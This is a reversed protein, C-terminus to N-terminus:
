NITKFHFGSPQKLSDKSTIKKMMIDSRSTILPNRSRCYTNYTAINYGNTKVINLLDSVSVQESQNVSNSLKVTGNSTPNILIGYPHKKYFKMSRIIGTNSIQYGKFHPGLDAWLINPNYIDLVTEIPTANM